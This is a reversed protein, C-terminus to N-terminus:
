DATALANLTELLQARIEKIGYHKKAYERTKMAENYFDMNVVGLLVKGLKTLDNIVVSGPINKAAEISALGEPGIALLVSGSQLCDTIKTSFSYKVIEKQKKEFSEVHLVLDSEQLFMKIKEYPEAGCFESAGEISLERKQLDSVLTSSYIKLYFNHISNKNIEEIERALRVLTNARGYLLNGAYTIIIKQNNKKLVPTEFSCGKRLIEFDVGYIEEYRKKLSETIAYRKNALLIQKKLNERVKKSKNSGFLDDTLFTIYKCKPILKLISEVLLGDMLLASTFGIIFNPNFDLIFKKFKENEWCKNKLLFDEMRYALRTLKWKHIFSVLKGERKQVTDVEENDSLTLNEQYEGIKQPHFFNKVVSSYSIKYYKNCVNNKPKANRRYLCAIDADPMEGLLNSMTNGFANEDSWEINTLVLIRLKKM